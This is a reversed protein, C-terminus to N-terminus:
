TGGARRNAGGGAHHHARAHACRARRLAATAGNLGAHPSNPDVRRHQTRENALPPCAVTFTSRTRHLTHAVSEVGTSGITAPREGRTWENASVIRAGAYAHRTGLLAAPLDSLKACGVGLPHRVGSARIDAG